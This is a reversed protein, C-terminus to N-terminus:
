KTLFYVRGMTACPWLGAALRWAGRRETASLGIGPHARALTTTGCGCAVEGDELPRRSAVQQQLTAPAGGGGGRGDPRGARLELLARAGLLDSTPLPFPLSCFARTSPFLRDRASHQVRPHPLPPIRRQRLAPAPPPSCFPTARRQLLPM